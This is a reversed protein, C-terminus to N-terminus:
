SALIEQTAAMKSEMEKRINPAMVVSHELEWKSNAQAAIESSGFVNKPQYGQRRLKKYADMDKDRTKESHRREGADIGQFQISNLKIRFCDPCNQHQGTHTETEIM